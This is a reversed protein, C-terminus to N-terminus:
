IMDLQPIANPFSLLRVFKSSRQERAEDRWTEYTGPVLLGNCDLFSMMLIPGKIRFITGSPTVNVPELKRVEKGGNPLCISIVLISGLSTGV